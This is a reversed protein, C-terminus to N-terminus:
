RPPGKKLFQEAMDYEFFGLMQTGLVDELMRRGGADDHAAYKSMAGYFFAEARRGRTDAKTLLEDFGIQGTAYRALDYYWRNSQHAAKGLYEAVIRDPELGKIRAANWMWLSTYVKFYDSVEGRGVARHCADLAEDYNGHSWMYAVFDALRESTPDAEIAADFFQVAQGDDGVDSQLHAMEVLGLAIDPNSGEHPKTVELLEKWDEIAAQFLKKAQGHQGAAVYAEGALRRLGAQAIRIERPGDEGRPMAIAREFDRAAALHDGQKDEITALQEVASPNAGAKQARRFYTVADSVEGLRYLGEGMVVDAEAQGVDLRTKSKAAAQQIAGELGAMEKRAADVREGSLLDEMQIVHLRIWIDLADLNDPALVRAREAWRLAVGNRRLGGALQAACIAPDVDKPMRRTAEECIGLAALPDTKEFVSALGIWRDAGAGQALTEQLAAEIQGDDGFQGALASVPAQADALRHLRAFIRILNFRPLAAGPDKQHAIINSQHGSVKIDAVIAGQRELVLKVLTDGVWPSPFHDVVTELAEVIHTDEAGAGTEAVDLDDDYRKIEGFTEDIQKARDPRAVQLAALATLAQMDNGSASFTKYVADALGAIQDVDQPHGALEEPTWLELGTDFADFAADRADKLQASARSQYALWLEHRKVPRDPSDLPMADFMTRARVLDDEDSLDFSPDHRPPLGRLAESAAPSTAPGCSAHVLLLISPARLRM